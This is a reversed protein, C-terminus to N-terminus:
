QKEGGVKAEKALVRAQVGRVLHESQSPMHCLEAYCLLARHLWRRQDINEVDINKM